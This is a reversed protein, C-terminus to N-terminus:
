ISITRLQTHLISLIHPSFLSTCVWSGDCSIHEGNESMAHEVYIFRNPDGTGHKEHSQFATRDMSVGGAGHEDPYVINSHASDDTDDDDSAGYGGFDSPIDAGLRGYFSDLHEDNTTQGATWVAYSCAPLVNTNYKSNPICKSVEALVEDIADDDSADGTNVWVDQIYEYGNIDWIEYAYTINYNEAMCKKFNM